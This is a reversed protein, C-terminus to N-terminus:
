LWRLISLKSSSRWARERLTFCLIHVICTACMIVRISVWFGLCFFGLGVLMSKFSTLSWEKVICLPERCKNWLSLLICALLNLLKGEKTNDVILEMAKAKAVLFSMFECQHNCSRSCDVLHCWLTWWAISLLVLNCFHKNFAIPYLIQCVM